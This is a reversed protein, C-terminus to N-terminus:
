KNFGPYENQELDSFQGFEGNFYMKVDGVPGHRQKAIIAEAMNEMDIKKQEWEAERVKFKENNENLHQKPTDQKLYYIERYVFMVIDADQEISGSERLDSLQPRKNDRQEVSRSLQSLALVPVDLEKAMMKLARTMESLEQVRNESRGASSMLQLYDIVILGLGKEKDRKLRRARNRIANVTAGPTDDVFLPVKSLLSVGAALEDFQEDTLKGTRMLHSPVRAKSSLVRTALQEASMELSFFAVSKKEAGPKKNEIEFKLAANFAMTMALATKGMAPRGALIMLDSNHMGGLLRDMGALGTTVGSLGDPSKMAHEAAKLSEGLAVHLAKPGGQLEGETAVHYLKKEAIELQAVADEDLRIDFADNVMDNGLAILQRRLHRDLIQRGYDGANIITGSSAALKALYASGGVDKLTEDKDFLERLTIPDAIRGQEIYRVAAEFIKGHVPSAFHEPRLFESVKELARNNSLIAGLLAQEAELNQPPIRMTETINEM